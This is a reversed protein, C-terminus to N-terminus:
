QSLASQALVERFHHSWKRCCDEEFSTNQLIVKKKWFRAAHEPPQHPLPLAPTTSNRSSSTTSIHYLHSNSNLTKKQYHLNLNYIEPASTRSRCTTSTMRARPMGLDDNLDPCRVKKLFELSRQEERPLRTTQCSGQHRYYHKLLLTKTSVVKPPRSFVIKSPM